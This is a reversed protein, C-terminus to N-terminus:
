HSAEEEGLLHVLRTFEGELLQDYPESPPTRAPFVCYPRRLLRVALLTVRAVHFDSTVLGITDYDRLYPRVALMAIDDLTHRTDIGDIISTEAVQRALLFSKLYHWHPADSTNFHSGFGGTLVMDPRGFRHYLVAALAARGEAIPLLRGDATNPAGLVALLLSSTERRRPM